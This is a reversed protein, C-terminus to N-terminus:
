LREWGGGAKGSFTEFCDFVLVGDELLFVLRAEIITPILGLM